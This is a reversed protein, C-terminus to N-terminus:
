RATARIVFHYPFFNQEVARAEFGRDGLWACAEAARYVEKSPPGVPRDIAADWDVFIVIGDKALLPHLASVDQEDMEHLVNIGIIRDFTAAPLSAFAPGAIRLNSLASDKVRGRAIELMAEQSDYAFVTADTHERAIAMAYRATGTGYDLVRALPPIGILEVLAPTPLWKEREPDDLRDAKSPNFPRNQKASM